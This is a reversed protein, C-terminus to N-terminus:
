RGASVAVVLVQGHGFAAGLEEASLSDILAMEDVLDGLERRADATVEAGTLVFDARGEALWARAAEIGAAAQDARRARDLWDICRRALLREAQEGLDRGAQAPRRAAKAFLRRALAQDVAERRAAVWLGRGPLRGEVDVAITGDASLVFRVLLSRPRIAGSVICRRMPRDVKAASSRGAEQGISGGALSPALSGTL